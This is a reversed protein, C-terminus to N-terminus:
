KKKGRKKKSNKKKKSDTSAQTSNTKNQVKEKVEEIFSALKNNISGCLSMVGQSESEAQLKLIAEHLAVLSELNDTMDLSTKELFELLKETTKLVDRVRKAKKMETDQVAEFLSKVFSDCCGSMADLGKTDVDSQDGASDKISRGVLPTLLRFAESKLFPSRASRSATCLPLALLIQAM